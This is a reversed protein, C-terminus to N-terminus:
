ERGTKGQLKGRGYQAFMQTVAHLVRECDRRSAREGEGGGGGKEGDSKSDKRGREKRETGRM